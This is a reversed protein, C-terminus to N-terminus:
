RSALQSWPMEFQGIRLGLHLDNVLQTLLLFSFSMSLTVNRNFATSGIFTVKGEKITIQLWSNRRRQKRVVIKMPAYRIGKVVVGQSLKKLKDVM